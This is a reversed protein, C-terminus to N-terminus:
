SPMYLKSPQIITFDSDDLNYKEKLLIELEEKTLLTKVRYGHEGYNQIDRISTNQNACKM